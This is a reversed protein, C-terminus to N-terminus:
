ILRNSTGSIYVMFKAAGWNAIRQAATKVVGMFNARGKKVMEIAEMENKAWVKYKMTTPILAEVIIDYPKLRNAEKIKAELKLEEESKTKKNQMNQYIDILM